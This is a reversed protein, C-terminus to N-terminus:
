GYTYGSGQRACDCFGPMRLEGIMPTFHVHFLEVHQVHRLFICDSDQEAAYIVAQQPHALPNFLCHSCGVVNDQGHVAKSVFHEKISYSLLLILLPLSGDSYVAVAVPRSLHPRVFLIFENTICPILREQSICSTYRASAFQASAM